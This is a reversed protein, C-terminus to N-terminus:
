SGAAGVPDPSNGGLTPEIRAWVRKGHDTGEVGWEQSLAAVLQIGRHGETSWPAENVLQPLGPGPDSVAVEICGRVETIAIEATGDQHVVANASLEGVIVAFLELDVPLGLSAVAERAFRRVGALEAPDASFAMTLPAM